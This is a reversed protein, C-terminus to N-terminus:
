HKVRSYRRSDFHRRSPKNEIVLKRATVNSPDTRELINGDYTTLIEFSDTTGRDPNLIDFITLIIPGQTVEYDNDLTFVISNVEQTCSTFTKIGGDVSCAPASPIVKYQTPFQVEVKSGLSLKVTPQVTLIYTAYVAANTPFVDMKTLNLIEYIGANELSLSYFNPHSILSFENYNVDAYWTSMVSGYNPNTIGNVIIRFTGGAPVEGINSVQIKNSTFFSTLKTSNSIM